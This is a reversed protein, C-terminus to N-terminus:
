NIGMIAAIEADIEEEDEAEENDDVVSDEGNDDDVDSYNDINIVETDDGDNMEDDDEEIVTANHEEVVNDNDEAITDDDMNEIFHIYKECLAEHRAVINATKAAGNTCANNYKESTSTMKDADYFYMLFKAVDEDSIEKEISEAFLPILSVMHTETYLKKAVKKKKHELLLNHVRVIKDFVEVLAKKEENTVEASELMPNFDRSEFSVDEIDENMMLWCKMVLAVQSKNSRAKDTLMEMFLNHSGIELIEEIDKCSALSRSKASLPKGANLRKFMEREEEKTLNDFYTVSIAVTYLHNQLVEPLESFKKGSIDCELTENTMDDVYVVPDIGSLSFEDFLFEKITTLRQKGDMIFYINNRGNGNRKAFVPPVPYGMILSHILNSKRNRDWTLGRQVIHEMNAKGTNVMGALQKLNWSISAKELSM